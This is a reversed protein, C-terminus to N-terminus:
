VAQYGGRKQKWVLFWGVAAAVFSLAFFVGLAAEGGKEKKAIHKEVVLAAWECKNNVMQFGTGCECKGHHCYGFAPCQSTCFDQKGVRFVKTHQENSLFYVHEFTVQASWARTLYPPLNQWGTIAMSNIDIRLIAFGGNMGVYLTGNFEDVALAKPDSFNTPLNIVGRTTLNFINVFAIAGTGTGEVAIGLILLSLPYYVKSSTIRGGFVGIHGPNWNLPSVTLPVTPDFDGLILDVWYTGPEVLVTYTTNPSAAGSVNWLHHIMPKFYSNFAVFRAYYDVVAVDTVNNFTWHSSFNAAPTDQLM